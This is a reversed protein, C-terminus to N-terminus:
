DYIFDERVTISINLLDIFLNVNPNESIYNELLEEYEGQLEIATALDGGQSKAVEFASNAKQFATNVEELTISM